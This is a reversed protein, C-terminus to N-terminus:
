PPVGLDVTKILLFYSTGHFFGDMKIWKPPTGWKQFGGHQWALQRAAAADFAHPLHAGSSCTPQPMTTEYFISVRQYNTVYSNFIAM